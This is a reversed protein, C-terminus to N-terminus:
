HTPPHNPHIGAEFAFVPLRPEFKELRTKLESRLKKSRRPDVEKERFTWKRKMLVHQWRNIKEELNIEQTPSFVEFRLAWGWSFFNRAPHGPVSSIIKLINKGFIEAFFNANQAWFLALNQFFIIMVTTKSFFELKKASFQWFDCFITIM